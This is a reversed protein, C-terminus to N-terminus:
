ERCEARDDSRGGRDQPCAHGRLRDRFREPYVAACTDGRHSADEASRAKRRRDNMYVREITDGPARVASFAEKYIRADFM